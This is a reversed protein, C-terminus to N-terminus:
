YYKYRKRYGILFALILVFSVGEIIVQCIWVSDITNGLLAPVTYLALLPFIFSHFAAIFASIGGNGLATFLSSGLMNFGMLIFSLCFLRFGHVSMEILAENDRIFILTFPRALLEALLTLVVGSSLLITVDKKFINQLEAYDHAGNNFSIIPASGMVIGIFVSSFTFNIYQVIGFANVGDQGAIEMFKLNYLIIVISITLNNVFESVGNTCTKTIVKGVFNTKGLRLNSDNDRAFFVLPVIGGFFQSMATGIAAGVLGWKFAVIFLADLVVNGIGAALTAYLGLKPKSATACLSQFMNQLVFVPTFCFLIRLYMVCCELLEGEAGLLIGLPRAFAFGLAGLVIGAAIAFYVILSFNRNARENDGEGFATAIVASGGTGFVFGAGGFIMIVPWTLNVAAFPTEGVFNTVFFGDVNGYLSTFIMMAISPFVFRILKKFTFHESIEIKM